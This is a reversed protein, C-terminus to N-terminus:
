VGKGSPSVYPFSLLKGKKAIAQLHNLLVPTLDKPLFQNALGPLLIRCFWSFPDMFLSCVVSFTLLFSRVRYIKLNYISCLGM